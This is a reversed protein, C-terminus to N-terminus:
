RGEARQGRGEPEWVKVVYNGSNDPVHDDNVGLFLRGDAPMQVAQGTDGISFPSRNGVRGILTGAPITPIPAKGGLRLNKAGAATATDDDYFSLRIEGSPEFRLWQGRRVSLTTSTWEVNAPVVVTHAGAPAASRQGGAFMQAAGLALIELVVTALLANRM